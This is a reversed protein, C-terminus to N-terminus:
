DVWFPKPFRDTYIIKDTEETDIDFADDWYFYISKDHNKPLYCVIIAYTNDGAYGTCWWPMNIKGLDILPRPDDVSKTKFRYRIYKMKKVKWFHGATEACALQICDTSKEGGTFLCRASM